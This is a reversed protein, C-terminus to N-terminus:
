FAVGVCLGWFFTNVGSLATPNENGFRFGMPVSAYYSYSDSKYFTKTLSQTFGYRGSSSLSLREALAFGHKLPFLLGPHFQLECVGSQSKGGVSTSTSTIYPIFEFSFGIKPSKYINIGVPFGVKYTNSSFIYSPNFQSSYTGVTHYVSFYTTIKPSTATQTNGVTTIALFAVIIWYKLNM